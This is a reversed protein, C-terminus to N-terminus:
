YIFTIDQTLNSHLSKAVPCNRAANELIQKEKDTYIQNPFYMKIEIKDIRRPNSEMIKLVEARLGEINIKHANAAIGMITMMCSALATAVLDTPSFFEGNGNNDKPADTIIENGSQLHTCITRLGNKYIVKSTM